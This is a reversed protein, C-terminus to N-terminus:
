TQHAASSYISPVGESPHYGFARHAFSSNTQIKPCSPQRIFLYFAVLPLEKKMEEPTMDSVIQRRAKSQTAEIRHFLHTGSHSVLVYGQGM